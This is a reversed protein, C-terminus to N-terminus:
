SRHKRRRAPMRAIQSRIRRSLTAAAATLFVLNYVIQFLTVMRATQTLPVIDGYGITALTVVTFYLGDLRTSLGQFAGPQRALAFDAASFVLLTLTLLLMIAIAPHANPRELVVDRMHNILLLAILALAVVFTTWSLVPHAPGFWDIPAAFYLAVLGAMGGVTAVWALPPVHTPEPGHETGREQEGGRGEM